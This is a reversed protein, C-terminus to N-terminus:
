RYFGAATNAPLARQYAFSNDTAIRVPHGILSPRDYGLSTNHYFNAPATVNPVM